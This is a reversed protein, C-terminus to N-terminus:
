STSTLLEVAQRLLEADGELSPEGPHGSLRVARGRIGLREMVADAQLSSRDTPHGPTDVTVLLKGAAPHLILDLLGSRVQKPSGVGVEVAVRGAVVGDVSGQGADSGYSFFREDGRSWDDGFAISLAEFAYDEYRGMQHAFYRHSVRIALSDLFWDQSPM